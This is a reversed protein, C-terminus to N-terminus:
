MMGSMIKQIKNKRKLLTSRKRKHDWLATGAIKVGLLALPAEAVPRRGEV